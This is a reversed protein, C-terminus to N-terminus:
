YWRGNEYVAPRAEAITAEDTRYFKAYDARCADVALDLNDAWYHGAYHRAKDVTYAQVYYCRATRGGALITRATM